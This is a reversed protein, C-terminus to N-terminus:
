ERKGFYLPAAGTSRAIRSPSFTVPTEIIFISSPKSVPSTNTERCISISFLVVVLENNLDRFSEAEEEIKLFKGLLQLQVETNDKTIGDKILGENTLDDFEINSSADKLKFISYTDAKTKEIGLEDVLLKIIKGDNTMGKEYSSKIGFKNEKKLNSYKELSWYLFIYEQM